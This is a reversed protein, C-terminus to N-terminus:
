PTVGPLLMKLGGARMRYTLPPTFRRVEGDNAVRLHHRRSHVTLTTASLTELEQDSQWNGLGMRAILRLMGWPGHHRALYVGFRGSELTTRRLVPGFGEAYPNNSVALVPTRVRRAGQGLDVYVDLVPFDRLAKSMALAMAPWKRLGLRHQHQEREQIIRPYLGLVSANLFVEGNVEGVDIPRVAGAAVAQVAAPWDLPTNLDRALLNMTGLPLVGLVKGARIAANAGTLITGDGGGVVLVEADSAAAREIANGCDAAQTAVVQVEAGNQQFAHRVADEAQGIPMGMLTGASQNLVVAVKM